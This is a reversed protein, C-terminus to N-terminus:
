SLSRGVKAAATVRVCWQELSKAQCRGLLAMEGAGGSRESAGPDFHINSATRLLHPFAALHPSFLNMAWLFMGILVYGRRGRSRVKGSGRFPNTKTCNAHQFCSLFCDSFSQDTFKGAKLSGPNRKHSIPLKEWQQLWKSNLRSFRGCWLPSLYGQVAAGDNSHHTLFGPISFSLLSFAKTTM